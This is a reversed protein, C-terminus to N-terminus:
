AAHNEITDLSQLINTPKPIPTIPGPKYDININHPYTSSILCQHNTPRTFQSEPIFTFTTSEAKLKNTQKLGNFQNQRLQILRPYDM